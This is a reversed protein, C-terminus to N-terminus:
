FSSSISYGSLTFLSILFCRELYKRVSNLARSQHMACDGSLVQRLLIFARLSQGPPSPQCTCELSNVHTDTCNGHSSCNFPCTLPEEVFAAKVNFQASETMRGPNNYVAVYFTQASTTHQVLLHRSSMARLSVSDAHSPYEMVSPLENQRGHEDTAAKLFLIPDGSFRRLEVFFGEM